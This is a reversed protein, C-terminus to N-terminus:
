GAVPQDSSPAPPIPQAASEEGLPETGDALTEAAPEAPKDKLARFALTRVIFNYASLLASGFIALATCLIFAIVSVMIAAGQLAQWRGLLALLAPLAALFLPAMFLLTSVLNILALVASIALMPGLNATTVQWAREIAAMIGLNEDLMAIAINNFFTQLLWGLPILVISLPVLCLLGLGFTSIILLILPLMLLAAALTGAVTLLARLLLLRWYYPKLSTFVQKFQLPTSDQKEDALITGRILGAQGLASVFFGVIAALFVFAILGMALLVWFWVPVSRASEFLNLGSMGPLFGQLGSGNPGPIVVRLGQGGGGLTVTGALLGFLWLIKHRGLFHWAKSFLKSYDM